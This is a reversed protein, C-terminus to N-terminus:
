FKEVVCRECSIIISSLCLKPLYRMHQLLFYEIYKIKQKILGGM